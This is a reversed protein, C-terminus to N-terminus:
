LFESCATRDLEALYGNCVVEPFYPRVAKEILCQASAVCQTFEVDSVKMTSRRYLAERSHRVKVIAGVGPPPFHVLRSETAMYKKIKKPLERDKARERSIAMVHTDSPAATVICEVVEEPSAGTVNICFGEWTKCNRRDSVNVSFYAMPRGVKSCAQTVAADCPIHTPEMVASLAASVTTVDWQAAHKKRVAACSFDHVQPNKKMMSGLWERDERGGDWPKKDFRKQYTKSLTIHHRLVDLLIRPVLDAFICM